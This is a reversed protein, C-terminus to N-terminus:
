RLLLVLEGILLNLSMGVACGLTLIPFLVFLGRGLRYLLLAYVSIRVGKKKKSLRAVSECFRLSEVIYPLKEGERERGGLFASDRRWLCVFFSFVTSADRTLWRVQPPPSLHHHHHHHSTWKPSWTISPLFSPFFDFSNWISVPSSQM